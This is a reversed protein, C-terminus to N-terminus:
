RIRGWRASLPWYILVAPGVINEQPVGGFYRGDLSQGTNDGFPLYMGEGLQFHPDRRTFAPPPMDGGVTPLVYGRYGRGRAYVQRHFVPPDLVPEGNVLLYPADIGILEGPLGVLRKIYYTDPQVQPYDVGATDFVFVDGRAPRTFNYRVKNVLIHDGARVRGSALLQGREVYDGVQFHRALQPRFRPVVGNPSFVLGDQQELREVLGSRAARVEVFREGFFVLPVLSLPFHDMLERQALPQAQIGYLTPEMSGTPIKFPQLFYTRFAMAVGIAVVLIEVYERVRAHPRSPYIRHTHEMLAEAMQGATTWDRRARADDVAAELELARAVVDSELRDARMHRAHRADHLVQKLQKTLQRRQWWNM